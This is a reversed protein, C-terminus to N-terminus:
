QYVAHKWPEQYRILETGHVLILCQDRSVAWTSLPERATSEEYDNRPGVCEVKAVHAKTNHLSVVVDIVKKCLVM